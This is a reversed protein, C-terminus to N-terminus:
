WRQLGGKSVPLKIDKKCSPQIHLQAQFCETKIDLSQFIELLKLHATEISLHSCAIRLGRPLCLLESSNPHTSKWVSQAAKLERLELEESSLSKLLLLIQQKIADRCMAGPLAHFTFLSIFRLAKVWFCNNTSTRAMEADVM